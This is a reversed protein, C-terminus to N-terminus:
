ACNHFQRPFQAIRVRISLFEHVCPKRQLFPAAHLCLMPLNQTDPRHNFVCRMYRQQYQSPRLMLM